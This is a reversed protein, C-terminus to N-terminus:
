ELYSDPKNEWARRNKKTMRGQDGEKRIMRNEKKEQKREKAQELVEQKTHDLYSAQAIPAGVRTDLLALVEIQKKHTGDHSPTEIMDGVKINAAPKLAVGARKVKGGSCDAAASSRTKYFRIAWLWKDIRVSNAM